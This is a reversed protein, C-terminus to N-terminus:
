LSRFMNKFRKRWPKDSDPRSGQFNFKTDSPIQSYNFVGVLAKVKRSIFTRADNNIIGLSNGVAKLKFGVRLWTTIGSVALGDAMLTLRRMVKTIVDKGALDYNSANVSVKRAAILKSVPNVVNYTTAASVLKRSAILNGGANTLVYSSGNSSIKRSVTLKTIGPSVSFTGSTVSFLGQVSLLLSAPNNVLPLYGSSVSIKRSAKLGSSVGSIISSGNQARVLKNNLLNASVGYITSLGNQAKVIKNNLLNTNVGSIVTSGGLARVLRNTLLNAVIGSIVSSGSQARVLKNNLLNATTGGLAYPASTEAPVVKNNLLRTIGNGISVQSSVQATIKRTGILGTSYGNLPINSSYAAPLKYGRNLYTAAYTTTFIGKNASVLRSALLRGNQLTLLSSSPAATLVYNNVPLATSLLDSYSEGEYTDAFIQYRNASVQAVEGDSLVRDWVYACEIQGDWNRANDSARNGITMYTSAADVLATTRSTDTASLVGNVYMQVTHINNSFGHTVLIDIPSSSGGSGSVPINVETSGGNLYFGYNIRGDARYWMLFQGTAGNTKDFLRGLGGGGDSNRKFRFFYSRGTSAPFAGTLSTIIKDTTGVGVSTGFGATLGGPLTSQKMGTPTLRLMSATDLVRNVGPLVALRLGASLSNGQDIRLLGQPQYRMGM